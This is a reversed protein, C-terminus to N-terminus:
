LYAMLGCSRSHEWSVLWVAQQGPTGGFVWVPAREAAALWGGGEARSLLPRCGPGCAAWCMGAEGRVGWSRNCASTERMAGLRLPGGAGRTGPRAAVQQRRAQWGSGHEGGGAGEEEGQSIGM